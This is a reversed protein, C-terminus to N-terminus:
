QIPLYIETFYDAPNPTLMPDTKYVEYPAEESRVLGNQDIFEEGKKRAEDLNSYAGKLTVKVAKGPEQYSCLLNSNTATIERNQVPIAASFIMSDYYPNIKEYIIRPMGYMDIKNRQMYSMINQLMQTKLEQLNEKKASSSMYLFYGGGTEIIGDVSSSSVNMNKIVLEELNELGKKYKPTIEEEMNFGFVASMAKDVLGQEGKINWTILTGNEVQELAMIVESNSSTIGNDYFMDMIISKDPELDTITMKGNGYSDIFSYNADVGQTQTGMTTEIEVDELWPSWNGWQKFDEIQDYIVSTPADIVRTQTIDYTGDKLSFYVAGGIILILLLIMIYKIAKM